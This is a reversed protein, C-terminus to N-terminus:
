NVKIERTWNRNTVGIDCIMGIEKRKELDGGKGMCQRRRRHHTYLPKLNKTTSITWM